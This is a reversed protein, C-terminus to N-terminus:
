GGGDGSYGRSAAAVGAPGGSKRRRSSFWRTTRERSTRLTSHCSPAAAPQAVILCLAVERRTTRTAVCRFPTIIVTRMFLSLHLRHLCSETTHCISFTQRDNNFIRRRGRSSSSSSSTASARDYEDDCYDYTDSNQHQDSNYQQGNSSSTTRSNGERGRLSLLLWPPRRTAARRATGGLRPHVSM